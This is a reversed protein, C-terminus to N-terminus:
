RSIWSPSRGLNEIKLDSYSLRPPGIKEFKTRVTYVCSLVEVHSQRYKLLARLNSCSIKCM